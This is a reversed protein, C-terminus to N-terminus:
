HTSSINRLGRLIGKKLKVLVSGASARRIMYLCHGLFRLPTDYCKCARKVPLGSIGVADKQRCLKGISLGDSCDGPCLSELVFSFMVSQKTTPAATILADTFLCRSEERAHYTAKVDKDEQLSLDIRNGATQGKRRRKEM